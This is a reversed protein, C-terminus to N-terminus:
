SDPKNRHNSFALFLFSLSYAGASLILVLSYGGMFAILLAASTSIVSSFANTAWAWPISAKKEGELMRIGSPFPFGMCFGLPFIVLFSLLIKHALELGILHQNLLSFGFFATIVGSSCILLVIKLNKRLNKGLIKKSSLSGISSSFLLSFVIFSASYLPHGLFLIFKHLLVIEVFMYAAGILSFYFFVAWSGKGQNIGQKRRIILPLLIMLCAMLASQILLWVVLYEGQFFPLWKKGFAQYTEKIKTPKFFNFFFPRNDTTPEIQFLYGSFLAQRQMPNIIQVALDYYLPKNFKNYINVENERIGPYYVLDFRFTKAFVKLKQIEQATFVSKKIFYSITGWSRLAIIHFAPNKEKKELAEIWTALARIEQRPPPLLYFSMSAIGKPSLRDLIDAFSDVTYIYNEGFSYLGSGAAGFVDAMAFVILDYSEKDKKLAARSTSAEVRINQKEYLHGSFSALETRLIKILLPNNEIIKIKSANHIFAQIVELGGGPEVILVKPRQVLSFAFASPLARLFDLSPDDMGKFQTIASPEGGDESLGLQLPLAKTYLLSLGPAFRIAPSKFVDIRSIASWKTLLLKSEPYHLSLPLPKFPSIRFSLWSPSAFFICIEGAMALIAIGKFLFHRKLGFLLSSLLPLFSIFLIVGRDGNPLFVLLSFLTGAGAGLLDSFYIRNVEHPAETLMFSITLGAFFFPLSLFFEYLFIYYIQHINWTLQIFDFPLSNSFLFGLLIALSFLFASTSLFTERKVQKLTNFLTLFSGSAGYGLFAFSVVLFAFHYQQSISFYRILSLELSLTAASIFFIGVLFHTKLKEM